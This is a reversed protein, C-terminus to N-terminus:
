GQHAMTDQAIPRAESAGLKQEWRKWQSRSQESDSYDATGHAREVGNERAADLAMIVDYGVVGEYAYVNLVRAGAPANTYAARLRESLQAERFPADEGGIRYEGGPRIFLNVEAPAVAAAQPRADTPLRDAASRDCAVTVLSASVLLTATVASRLARGSSHVPMM